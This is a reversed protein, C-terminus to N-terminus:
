QMIFRVGTKADEPNGDTKFDEDKGNLASAKVEINVNRPQNSAKKMINNAITEFKTKMRSEWHEADALDSADVFIKFSDGKTSKDDSIIEYDIRGKGNSDHYGSSYIHEGSCHMNRPLYSCLESTKMNEYTGDSQSSTRRWNAAAKVIQSIDNRVVNKLQTAKANNIIKGIVIAMITVMIVTVFVLEILTFGRRFGATLSTHKTKEM